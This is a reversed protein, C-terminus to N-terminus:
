SSNSVGLYFNVNDVTLSLANAIQPVTQGQNYLNYVQQAESLQVTDAPAPAPQQTTQAAPSPAASTSPPNAAALSAISLANSISLGMLWEKEGGRTHDALAALLMLPNKNEQRRKTPPAVNKGSASRTTATPPPAKGPRKEEVRLQPESSRNAIEAPHSPICHTISRFDM